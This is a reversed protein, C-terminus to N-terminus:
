HQVIIRTQYEFHNESWRLIYIGNTLNSVRITSSQGELLKNGFMTYIEWSLDEGYAQITLADSTPNPFVRKSSTFSPITSTNRYNNFRADGDEGMYCPWSLEGLSRDFELRYVTFSDHNYWNKENNNTVFVLDTKGNADIDGFYPTSYLIFGKREGLVLYTTDDNVDYVQFQNRYHVTTSGVDYNIGIFIEDFGDNDLDILNASTLQYIGQNDWTKIVQGTKGDLAVFTYSSYFPFVGHAMITFVDPIDDNNLFGISPSVYAETGNQSYRWMVSFDNGDLAVVEGSQSCAIIDLQKDDDLDVLSPVAIFGKVTDSHLKVTSNKDQSILDSLPTSWLNGKITEGGTGWLINDDDLRLPSFYTEHQDPTPLISIVEGTKGSLLLLYGSPRTTDSSSAGAYGGNTILLDEMGDNDADEVWQPTYFNYWSSDVAEGMSDPWFEWLISGTRGDVALLQADRGAIVVDPFSDSNILKFKPSTYMQSRSAVAWLINGTAGDIAIIGSDSQQAEKGGGFVMDLTGDKNLDALNNISTFCSGQSVDTQWVQTQAFTSLGSIMSALLFFSKGTQNYILRFFCAKM